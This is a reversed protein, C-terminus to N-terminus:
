KGCSDCTIVYLMYVVVHCTALFANLREDLQGGIINCMISLWFVLLMFFQYFYLQTLSLTFDLLIALNM